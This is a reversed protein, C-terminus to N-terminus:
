EELLSIEDAIFSEKDKNHEYRGKILLINNKELLRYSTEYVKPFVTVEIEDTEDFIKIFSMTSNTKRVKIVKNDSVIGAISIKGYSEKAENLPVVKNLELLDKKYRLPNDSLMIGLEEYELNLNDIPKDVDNFFQKQNELTVDLILQGDKDYSLEALQYAYHLTARLTARSSNFKDLAGANILKEIVSESIKNGYSRAVFDFFDKYEGNLTREDIIKNVVLENVGRINTLPFLLGNDYVIFSKNSKNIDPLYVEYKRSKIESVYDSFKHDTTGSSITLIASYFELPYYYKLYAMRCAIISYVVSHSKNFGYDAFKLIHNFMELSDKQSYGKKISGNIFNVESSELVKKEKHSIARRFLDAEEPSFGAMDQAIKNIQEQYILVGYTPSLINKIDESLYSTKIKGEKRAVYDKINDMPGPRFIALLTVIDNFEKPKIIKIANRMGSSELQFVGITQGSSILKFINPDEYPIDYFSIKKNHNKYILSLCYDITTLNRLSLFDMKLFGQEELYDKEYQSTYHDNLDITVPLVTDIPDNNLVIGAAHLGSQRPLGEIKSALSVINLFYKDSDVLTKFTPIKKYAEKLSVKDTISKSLLDIHRTPYDYIRGIDRLAQKAQITQFTVINAVKNAGYRERMYDVMKDRATDMFDVDIDPMSKRAKNLFREFQLDYKLPDVETIGLAYSVLSGAASGRGPGVLIDHNRAYNVYDAVILFYDAYGMSSIVEIEKESRSIHEEDFINRDKLGQYVNEKLTKEANDVPFHTIEGRKIHFNFISKDILESTLDLEQKTYLKSYFELDHFYYEGNEEKVDLKEDKDIANAIKLIIADEKNQYRIRPFAITVYGLEKAFERIKKATAFESKNTVEIGLYFEDVFTSLKAFYKLFEPSNSEKFEEKFKGYNTELVGVLGSHHRNLDDFTLEGKSILTSLHILSHYGDENLAYVVLYNDGIFLEMGILYKKKVKEMAEIFSPVGYLVGSDSIGGGYFNGKTISNVVKSITLGSKLFSYGTIIRLPSFM